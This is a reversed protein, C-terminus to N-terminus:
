KYVTKDNDFMIRLKMYNYHNFQELFKNWLSKAENKIEKLKRQNKTLVPEQEKEEEELVRYFTDFWLWFYSFFYILYRYSINTHM